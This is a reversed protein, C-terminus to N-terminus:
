VADACRRAAMASPAAGGRRRAAHSAGTRVAAPVASTSPSTNKGSSGRSTGASGVSRSRRDTTASCVRVRMHPARCGSTMGVANGQSVWSDPM